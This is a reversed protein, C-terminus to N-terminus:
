RGPEESKSGGRKREEYEEKLKANRIKILELESHVGKIETDFVAIKALDPEAIPKPQRRVQKYRKNFATSQM